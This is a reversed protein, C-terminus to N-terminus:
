LVRGSDQPPTYFVADKGSTHIHSIILIVDADHSIRIDVLIIWTDLYKAGKYAIIQTIANFAAVALMMNSVYASM